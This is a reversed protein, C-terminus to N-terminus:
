GALDVLEQPLGPSLYRGCAALVLLQLLKALAGRVKFSGTMQLNECKVFLECGLLRSLQAARACPTDPLTDRIRRRAKIIDDLSIM